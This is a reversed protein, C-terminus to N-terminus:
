IDGYKKFIEDYINCLENVMSNIDFGSKSMVEINCKREISLLEIARKAWTEAGSELSEYHIYKSINVENTITDSVIAPLSATQSEVLVFPLGEYLSPLIMADMAQLWDEVNSIAGLFRIKNSLQKKEIYEEIENRLEGEGILILVAKSEIQVIQEFIDILFRHNKQLNFRGVHGFVINDAINNEERVRNRVNTNYLYRKTDIANRDMYYKKENVITKDFLWQAAKESCAMYDSPMKCLFPKLLYHAVKRSHSKAFSNHSHAIRIKIGNKKALYVYLMDISNSINFHIADGDYNNKLYKDFEKLGEMLRKVPDKVEKKLIVNVEVGNKELLEDYHNTRKDIIVFEIKYKDSDIYQIVNTMFTEIGAWGFVDEFYIIKKM